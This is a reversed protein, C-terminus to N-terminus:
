LNTEFLHGVFSGNELQFTGIYNMPLEDDVEITHGTGFIAFNRHVTRLSPDVLVWICPQENQSQVSLIEASHPIEITISKGVALPFKWISLKKM